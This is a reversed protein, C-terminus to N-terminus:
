QVSNSINVLVGTAQSSMSTPQSGQSNGNVTSDTFRANTTVSGSNSGQMSMGSTSSTLAYGAALSGSDQGALTTKNTASLSAGTASVSASMNVGGGMHLNSIHADSSVSGSNISQLQMGDLQNAISDAWTPPSALCLAVACAISYRIM